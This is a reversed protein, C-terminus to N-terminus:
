PVYRLAYREVAADSAKAVLFQLIGPHLTSRMYLVLDQM